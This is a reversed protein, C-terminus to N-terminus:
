SAFVAEKRELKKKKVKRKGQLGRTLGKKKGKRSLRGKGKGRSPHPRKKEGQKSTPIKGRTRCKKEGPPIRPIRGQRWTWGPFVARKGMEQRKYSPRKGRRTVVDKEVLSIHRSL